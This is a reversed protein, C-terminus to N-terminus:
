RRFKLKRETRKDESNNICRRGTLVPVNRCINHPNGRIHM